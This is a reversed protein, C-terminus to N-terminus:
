QKKGCAPCHKWDDQVPNGCKPCAHSAPPPVAAASVVAARKGMRYSVVIVLALLALPILKRLGGFFLFGPGVHMRHHFMPGHHFPAFGFRHDGMRSRHEGFFKDQMPGNKLGDRDPRSFIVRNEPYAALKHHLVFPVAIIAAAFLVLVIGYDVELHKEYSAGSQYIKMIVTSHSFSIFINKLNAM